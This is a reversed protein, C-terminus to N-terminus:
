LENVHFFHSIVSHFLKCILVDLVNCLRVKTSIGTERGYLFLRSPYEIVHKVIHNSQTIPQVDSTVCDNM